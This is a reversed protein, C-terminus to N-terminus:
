LHPFLRPRTHATPAKTALRNAHRDAPTTLSSRHRVHYHDAGLPAVFAFAVHDIPQRDLSVNHHAELAAVVGAVSEHDIAFDVLERQQRRSNNTWAFQRDDAVTHHDIGMVQDRLHGLELRLTDLDRM